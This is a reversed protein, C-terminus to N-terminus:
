KGDQKRRKAPQVVDTKRAKIYRETMAINKHGLLAQAAQPDEMDTAVSGRLDHETFRLGGNSVFKAMTRRWIAGFGQSTYPTESRTAFLTVSKKPLHDLIERVEPSLAIALRKGTKGVTVVCATPTIDEWRINLMDRQRLGLLLKLDVYHSLWTPCEKKFQNIEEDSVYRTRATESNRTGPVSCPNSDDTLGWLRAQNFAHSLLAVERNARTKARRTRIYEVVDPTTVDTIAMSGFFTRLLKVEQRNDKQTREAKNPVIERLYRDLLDGITSITEPQSVKTAWRVMAKQYDSDLREWKNNAVYYYAGNKYYVREPLDRRQKRPRGM